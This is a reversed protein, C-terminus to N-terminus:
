GVEPLTLEIEGLKHIVMKLGFVIGESTAKMEITCSDETITIKVDEYEDFSVDSKQKYTNEEGEVKDYNEPNFLKEILEESYIDSDDEEVENIEKTWKGSEDKTYIYEVDGVTEIYEEEGFLMAPTYQINGDFKMAMTITGFLPVDSMTLDIQCSDVREMKEKFEDIPHKSACSTLSIFLSTCIAVIILLSVVKKMIIEEM